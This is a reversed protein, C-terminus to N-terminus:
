APAFWRPPRPPPWCIWGSASLKRLPPRSPLSRLDHCALRLGSAAAPLPCRLFTPWLTVGIDSLLVLDQGLLARCASWQEPTLAFSNVKTVMHTCGMGLVNCLSNSHTCALVTAYMNHVTMNFVSMHSVHCFMDVGIHLSLGALLASFDVHYRLM